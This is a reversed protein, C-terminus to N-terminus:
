RWGEARACAQLLEILQQSLSADVGLVPMLQISRLLADTLLGCRAPLSGHLFSRHDIKLRFEVISLDKSARKLEHYVPDDQGRIIAVVAWKGIASSTQELCDNVRREVLGRAERFGDHVDLDVEGGIWLKM